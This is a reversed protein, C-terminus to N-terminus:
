NGGLAGGELVMVNHTWHWYIFKTPVCASWIVKEKRGKEKEKEKKKKGGERGKM